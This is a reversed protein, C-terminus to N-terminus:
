NGGGPKQHLLVSFLALMEKDDLLKLKGSFFLQTFLIIEDSSSTLLAVRGKHLLNEENDIM